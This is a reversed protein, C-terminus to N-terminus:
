TPASVNPLGTKSVNQPRFGTQLIMYQHLNMQFVRFYRNKPGIKHSKPGSKQGMKTRFDAMKGQLTEFSPGSFLDLFTIKSWKESGM